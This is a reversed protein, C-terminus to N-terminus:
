HGTRSREHREIDVGKSSFLLEYDDGKGKGDKWEQATGVM